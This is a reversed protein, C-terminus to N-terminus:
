SWHGSGSALGIMPGGFGEFYGVPIFSSNLFLISIGIATDGITFKNGETILIKIDNTLLGGIYRSNGISELGWAGGHFKRGIDLSVDLSTYFVSSDISATGLYSELSFNLLKEQINNIIDDDLKGDMIKALNKVAQLKNETSFTNKM